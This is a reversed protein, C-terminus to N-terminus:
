MLSDIKACESCIRDCAEDSFAERAQGAYPRGLGRGLLFDSLNRGDPLFVDALLRGYKDICVVNVRCLLDFCLAHVLDRVATAAKKENAGRGRMEPCDIGRLRVSYKYLEGSLSCLITVTDGDYVRIVRGLNDEPKPQWKSFQKPDAAELRAKVSNVSDMMQRFLTKGSSRKAPFARTEQFFDATSLFRISAVVRGIEIRTIPGERSRREL